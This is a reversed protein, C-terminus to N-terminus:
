SFEADNVKRKISRVKRKSLQRRDGGADWGDACCYGPRMRRVAM